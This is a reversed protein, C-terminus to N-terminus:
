TCLAIFLQLAFHKQPRPPALLATGNFRRGRQVPTRPGKNSKEADLVAGPTLQAPAPMTVVDPPYLKLLSLGFLSAVLAIVLSQAHPNGAARTIVKSLPGLKFGIVDDHIGSTQRTDKKSARPRRNTCAATKKTKM